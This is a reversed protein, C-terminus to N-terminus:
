IWLIANNESDIAVAINSSGDSRWECRYSQVRGHRNHETELGVRPQM